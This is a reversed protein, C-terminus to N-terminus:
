AKEKQDTSVAGLHGAAFARVTLDKDLLARRLYPVANKGGVRGLAQVAAVRVRAAPDDLAELAFAVAKAPATRAM